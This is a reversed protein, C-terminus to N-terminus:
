HPKTTPTYSRLQEYPDKNKKFDSYLRTIYGEVTPLDELQRLLESNDMDNEYHEMIFKMAQFITNKDVMWLMQQIIVKWMEIGDSLKKGEAVLRKGTMGNPSVGYLRFACDTCLLEIGSSCGYDWVLTKCGSCIVFPKIPRLKTKGKTHIESCYKCLGLM